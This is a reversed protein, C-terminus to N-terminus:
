TTILYELGYYILHIDPPIALRFFPAACFVQDVTSGPLLFHSRACHVNLKKYIYKHQTSTYATGFNGPRKSHQIENFNVTFDVFFSESERLRLGYRTIGFITFKYM